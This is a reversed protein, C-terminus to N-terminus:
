TLTATAVNNTCVSCNDFTIVGTPHTGNTCVLPAANNQCDHVSPGNIFVDWVNSICEVKGTWSSSNSGQWDCTSNWALSYTGNGDQCAGIGGIPVMGTVVMTIGTSGDDCGTACATCDSSGGGGTCGKALHGTPDKTLHGTDKGLHDIDAM